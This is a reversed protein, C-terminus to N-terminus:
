PSPPPPAGHAAAQAMFEGMDFYDRWRVVEGSPAREVVSCAHLIVATGDPLHGSSTWEIVGGRGDGLARGVAMQWDPFTARTAAYVAAIDDTRGTVPDEYTAGPGFLACWAREDSGPTMTLTAVAHAAWADFSSQM